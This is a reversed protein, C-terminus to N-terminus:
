GQPRSRTVPGFYSLQDGGAVTFQKRRASFPLETVRAALSNPELHAITALTKPGIGVVSLATALPVRVRTERVSRKAEILSSGLGVKRFERCRLHM